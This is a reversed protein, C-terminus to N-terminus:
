KRAFPSDGFLNWYSILQAVLNVFFIDGNRGERRKLMM